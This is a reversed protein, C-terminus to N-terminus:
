AGQKLSRLLDEFVGRQAEVTSSPGTLKFFWNADPGQAIAGLLAYGPKEGAETGMGGVYTGGVEVVLVRLAAGRLERTRMASQGDNGDALRFQSAWRAANSRPDGGQGPGFYFVVCEADGGPGAVRYQARRMASAPTEAIWGKPVTWRVGTAGTGGGDAVLPMVFSGAPPHGPPMPPMARKSANSRIEQAVPPHEAPLPASKEPAASAADGTAHAAHDHAPVPVPKPVDRNCALLSVAAVAVWRLSRM